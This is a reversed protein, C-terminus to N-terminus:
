ADNEIRTRQYASDGAILKVDKTVVVSPMGFSVHNVKATDRSDADIELPVLRM